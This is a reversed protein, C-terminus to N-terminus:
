IEPLPSLAAQLSKAFEIILQFIFLLAGLPLLMQIPGLPTEMPTMAIVGRILNSYAVQWTYVLLIGMCGLSIVDTFVQVWAHARKPLLGVIVNVRVQSGAKLAYAAGVLSIVSPMSHLRCDSCM